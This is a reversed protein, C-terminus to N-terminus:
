LTILCRAAKIKSVNVGMQRLLRAVTTGSVGHLEAIMDTSKGEVLYQRKLEPLVEDPLTRKRGRRSSGNYGKFSRIEAVNAHDIQKKSNALFKVGTDKGYSVGNINRAHIAAASLRDIIGKSLAEEVQEHSKWFNTPNALIKKREKVIERKTM